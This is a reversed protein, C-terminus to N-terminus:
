SELFDWADKYMNKVQGIQKDVSEQKIEIKMHNPGSYSNCQAMSLFIEGQTGPQDSTDAMANALYVLEVM